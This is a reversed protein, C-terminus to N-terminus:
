DPSKIVSGDAFVIATPVVESTFKGDQLNMLRKDEDMFQNLKKSGSWVFTAGPGIDEEAQFHITQIPAGFTDKLAIAGKVGKMARDSKNQIAVDVLFTNDFRNNRFDAAVVKWGQLVMTVSTRMAKVAAAREAEVKAKLALEEAEKAQQESIWAKQEEIAKGITVGEPIGGGGFVLSLKKRAVYGAFFKRDEESLKQVSPKLDKEWKSEDAPVVTDTPKGCAALVVALSICWLKKNM